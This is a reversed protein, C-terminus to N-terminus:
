QHFKGKPRAEFGGLFWFFAAYCVVLIIITLYGDNSKSKAPAKANARKPSSGMQTTRRSKHAKGKAVKEEREGFLFDAAGMRAQQCKTAREM